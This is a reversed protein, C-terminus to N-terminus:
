HEAVQDDEVVGIEAPLALEGVKRLDCVQRVGDDDVFGMVEAIHTTAAALRDGRGTVVPEVVQQVRIGASLGHEEERRRRDVVPETIKPVHRFQERAAILPVEALSQTDVVQTSVEGLRFPSEELSDTPLSDVERVPRRLRHLHHLAVGDESSEHHLPAAGVRLLALPPFGALGGNERM